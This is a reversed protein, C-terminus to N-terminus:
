KHFADRRELEDLKKLLDREMLLMYNEHELQAMKIKLEELETRPAQEAVRKGRRDELGADELEKYKKVWNYVQQYSVNFKIATEGYSNRNELCEKAIAIREEPTTERGRKMCSGGSMKHEFDRGSNYVKIWDRLQKASSIGYKAAIERQSGKGSLYDEITRRRLEPSYINNKEQVRLALPGNEKYQITLEQVTAKAVGLRRSAETASMRGEACAKAVEIREGDTLKQKRSM